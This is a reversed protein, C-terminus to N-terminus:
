IRGPQRPTIPQGQADFCEPAAKFVKILDNKLKPCATFVAMWISFFGVEEAQNLVSHRQTDTPNQQYAALAIQAKRWAKERRSTKDYILGQKKYSADAAPTENLGAMELTRQAMETHHASSLTPAVKVRGHQDYRYASFTNDLHPWAQNALIGIPTHKEQYHRKYTNCTICALLFNGWILALHPHTKQPEIHEVALETAEIRRECYVCYEGMAAILTPKAAGHASLNVGTPVNNVPRM